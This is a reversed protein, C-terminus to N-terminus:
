FIEINQNKKYRANCIKKIKTKVAYGPSFFFWRIKLITKYKQSIPNKNKIIAHKKNNGTIIQTM